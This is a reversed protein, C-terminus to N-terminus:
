WTSLITQDDPSFTPRVAEFFPAFRWIDGGEVGREILGRNDAQWSRLAIRQGTSNLAPQSAEAVVLRRDSGDLQADFIPFFIRGQLRPRQQPPRHIM